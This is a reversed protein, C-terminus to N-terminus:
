CSSVLVKSASGTSQIDDVFQFQTSGGFERLHALNIKEQIFKDYEEVSAGKLVQITYNICGSIWSLELM